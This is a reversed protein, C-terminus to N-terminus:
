PTTTRGFPRLGDSRDLRELKIEGRTAYEIAKGFIPQDYREDFGTDHVLAYMYLYDTLRQREEETLGEGVGGCFGLLGERVGMFWEDFGKLEEVSINRVTAKFRRGLGEFDGAMGLFM